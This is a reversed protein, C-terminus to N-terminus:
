KASRVFYAHKDVDACLDQLINSTVTDVTNSDIVSMLMQSIAELTRVMDKRMEVDDFEYDGEPFIASNLYESATANVPIKKARMREGIKDIWDSVMEHIGDFTKHDGYFSHGETNWHYNKAKIQLLVLNGLIDKLVKM